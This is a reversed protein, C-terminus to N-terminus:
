HPRLVLLSVVVLFCLQDIDQTKRKKKKKKNNKMCYIEEEEEEGGTKHTYNIEGGDGSWVRAWLISPFGEHAFSDCHFQM